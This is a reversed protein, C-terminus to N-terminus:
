IKFKDIVENLKQALEAQSQATIAVQEIAKTTENMSERIVEAEESSKQSSLAMEQVAENVQGVTATIEESMAAIEYSMKSVFDSDSYYQNGIKSYDNFQENVQTNIFKLIDSGTDISSKFANHVKVITDQINIAAEASQEALIRVEEAVVAFGKGQEGARAAEISANLALLNTQKAIGGITDAMVKISDVVKGDEIAKAMREQKEASIKRTEEIAKQSNNKVETSKEKSQDANNSGEIAKSSLVNVNSDVEEISASIEETTASANQMGDVINIVSQEIIDAKSSLEEVTASLEESAASIDQSNEMIVKILGKVNEQAINLATGTQGFENNSIVKIPTRFDYNSLREALEKTRNLSNIISRSLMYAISIGILFAIVTFIIIQYKVKIFEAKNDLNAQDALKENTSICKQLSPYTVSNILDVQKYVELAEDYKESKALDIIKTQVDVYKVASNKFEEYATKEESTFPLGEYESELKGEEAIMDKIDSIQKDLKSKDREYLMKLLKVQTYDLDDEITKLDNISVLYNSYMEEANNNIKWSIYQGEAGIFVIFTCILLFASILKKKISLNVFFKM